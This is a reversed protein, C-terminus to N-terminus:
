MSSSTQVSASDKLNSSCCNPAYICELELKECRQCPIQGNCKIKRRKCENSCRTLRRPPLKDLSSSWWAISIYRNRKSRQPAQNDNSEAKRKNDQEEPPAIQPSIQSTSYYPNPQPQPNTASNSAFLVSHLGSIAQIGGETLPFFMAAFAPSIRSTEM